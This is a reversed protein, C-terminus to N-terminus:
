NPNPQFMVLIGSNNNAASGNPNERVTNYSLAMAAGGTIHMYSIDGDVYIPSRVCHMAISMTCAQLAPLNLRITTTKGIRNRTQHLVPRNPRLFPRYTANFSTKNTDALLKQFEYTAFTGLQGQAIGTVTMAQVRVGFRSAMIPSIVVARPGIGLQTHQQNSQATDAAGQAIDVSQTTVELATVIDGSEDAINEDKAHKDFVYLTSNSGFNEPYFDYLPFELVIDGAGTVTCEYDIKKLFNTLLSYRDTWDLTGTVNTFGATSQIISNTVSLGEAPILWHVNGNLPTTSTKSNTVSSSWFSSAGTARCKQESWFGQVGSFLCLNDWAELDTVFVSNPNGTAPKASSNEPNAYRYVQGPQFFGFSAGKFGEVPSKGNVWNTKGTLLLSVSDAFGLGAFINDYQQDRVNTPYIDAFFGADWQDIVATQQRATADLTTFNSNTIPNVAVRMGQLIHRCDYCQLNVNSKGDVFDTSFNKGEITGTFAPIWRDATDPDSPNKIFIKVTDFRSFILSGPGFTYRQMFDQDAGLALATPTFAGRDVLLSPDTPPLPSSNAPNNRTKDVKIKMTQASLLRKNKFISYKPSESYKGPGLRWSGRFNENRLVWQDFPNTLIIDASSPSNRDTYTVELSKVYPSIDVGCVYVIFDHLFVTRQREIFRIVGRAM